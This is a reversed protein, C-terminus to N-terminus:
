SFFSLLLGPLVYWSISFFLFFALLYFGVKSTWEAGEEFPVDRSERRADRLEQRNSRLERWFLFASGVMGPVAAACGLLLMTPEDHLGPAAWAIVVLVAVLATCVWLVARAAGVARRV